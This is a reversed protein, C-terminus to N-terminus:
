APRAVKKRSNKLSLQKGSAAPFHCQAIVMISTACTLVQQQSKGQALQYILNVAVPPQAFWDVGSINGNGKSGFESDPSLIFCTLMAISAIFGDTAEINRGDNHAYTGNSRFTLHQKGGPTWFLYTDGYLIMRAVKFLLPNLFVHRMDGPRDTPFLVPPFEPYIDYVKGSTNTAQTIGLLQRIEPVTARPYHTTTFINGPIGFVQGGMRRFRDLANSIGDGVGKLFREKFKDSNQIADHYSPTNPIAHYIDAASALLLNEPLYRDVDNYAFSPKPSGFTGNPFYPGYFLQAYKAIRSIDVALQEDPTLNSVKGRGKGRRNRTTQLRLEANERILTVNEAKLQANDSQAELLATLYQQALPNGAVAALARDINASPVHWAPTSTSKSVAGSSIAAPNPSPRRSNSHRSSM